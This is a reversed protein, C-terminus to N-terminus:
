AGKPPRGESSKTNETEEGFFGSVWGAFSKLREEPGAKQVRPIGERKELYDVFGDLLQRFGSDIKVQGLKELTVMGTDLLDSVPWFGRARALRRAETDVAVDAEAAIEQADMQEWQKKAREYRRVQMRLKNENGLLAKVTRLGEAGHNVHMDSLVRNQTEGKPSVVELYREVMRRRRMKEWRDRLAMVGIASLGVAVLTMSAAVLYIIFRVFHIWANGSILQGFFNPEDEGPQYKVVPVKDIGVIKGIPIIEPLKDKEHLVLIELTFFKEREFIVKKFEVIDQEGTVTPNLNAAIYDSNSDVLRVDIIEGNQVQIGWIDDPDYYGQLIDVEGSNEVNITLIRLNSDEQEIDKGQFSVTLGELPEHVDLVNAENVSVMSIGPTPAHFGSYLGVAALLVSVLGLALRKDVSSILRKLISM